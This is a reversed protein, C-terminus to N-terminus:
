PAFSGARELRAQASEGEILDMVIFPRGADVGAAHVRVIAPHQLHAAAEAEAAFRSAAAPDSADLLVKIAVRRGIQPDYAAHVAGMGGAGLPREIVYRGIRPPPAQVAAM